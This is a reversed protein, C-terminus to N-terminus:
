ASVLMGIVTLVLAAMACIGAIEPAYRRLFNSNDVRVAPRRNGVRLGVFPVLYALLASALVLTLSVAPPAKEPPDTALLAAVVGFPIMLSIWIWETFTYVWLQRSRRQRLLADIRHFLAEAAPGTGSVRATTFRGRLSIDAGRGFIEVTRLVSANVAPLDDSSDVDYGDAEIAPAREFRAVPAGPDLLAWVDRVDQLTLTVAGYDGHLPRSRRTIAM